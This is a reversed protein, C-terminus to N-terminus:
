IMKRGDCYKCEYIQRGSNKIRKLEWEHGSLFCVFSEALWNMFRVIDM